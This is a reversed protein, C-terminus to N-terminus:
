TSMGTQWILAHLVFCSYYNKHQHILTHTHCLTCLICINLTSVIDYHPYGYTNDYSYCIQNHMCAFYVYNYLFFIRNLLVQRVWKLTGMYEVLGGHM